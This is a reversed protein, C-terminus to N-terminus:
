SNATPLSPYGSIALLRDAIFFGDQALILFVQRNLSLAGTNRRNFFPANFLPTSGEEIKGRGFCILIFQRSSGNPLPYTGAMPMRCFGM